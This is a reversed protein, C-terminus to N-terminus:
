KGSKIMARWQAETLTMEVSGPRSGIPFEAPPRHVKAIFPANNKERFHIIGPVTAILNLQYDQHRKGILFFLALGSRMAIDRQSKTRQIAKNHSLAIRGHRAVEPLWVEDPTRPGFHDDHCEALWGAARM